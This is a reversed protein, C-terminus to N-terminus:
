KPILMRIKLTITKMWIKVIRDEFTKCLWDVIKEELFILLLIVFDLLRMININHKKMAKRMIVDM